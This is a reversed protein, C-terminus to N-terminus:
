KINNKAEIDELSQIYGILYKVKSIYHITADNVTYSSKPNNKIEFYEDTQKDFDEILTLLKKIYEKEM